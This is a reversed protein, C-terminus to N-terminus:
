SGLWGILNWGANLVYIGPGFVLTVSQDVNIWYGKGKELKALDSVAPAAPDYKTYTQTASDYGWVIVVTDTISLLAAQVTEAAKKVDFDKDKTTSADDTVRITALGTGSSPVVISGTFNGLSDTVISVPVTNVLLYGAAAPPRKYRVEITSNSAFGTGTLSVVTGPAGEIPTIDLIAKLVKFSASAVNGFDDTFTVSTSKEGPGFDDPVTFSGSAEGASNIEIGSITSLGCGSTTCDLTGKKGAAFGTMSAQVSHGVSGSSPNLTLTRETITFNSTADVDGTGDTTVKVQLAGAPSNKKIRLVITFEGALPVLKVFYQGDATVLAETAVETYATGGVTVATIGAATNTADAPFQEGKVTVKKAVLGSSPDLTLKATVTFQHIDDVDEPATTTTADFKKGLGDRALIWATASMAFTATASGRSDTAVTSKVKLNTEDSLDGDTDDDLTCGTVDGSPICNAGKDRYLTLGVNKSFGTASVTMETGKAGKKSAPSTIKVRSRVAVTFTRTNGGGLVSIKHNGVISPPVKFSLTFEGGEDVGATAAEDKDTLPVAPFTTLMETDGSGHEFKVELALSELHLTGGWVEDLTADGSTVTLTDGVYATTKSIFAWDGAENDATYGAPGAATIPPAAVAFLSVLLALVVALRIM